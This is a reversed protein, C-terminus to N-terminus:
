VLVEIRAKKKLEEIFAQAREQKQQETLYEKIRESVQEFPVTSAARHETVRIIHYGFPTTVVDSTEGPKLSFAVQDFAPVMQGKTFFNLDGGQAASGDKSYKKALTAFDGGAKLQKLVDDVEARAKKKTAEDAKEDAPILIHSARVAEEQKFKDPNKDYFERVQADTPAPASAVEAQMMKNISMDIRADARLKDLTMGRAALAKTFEAESPFQSRMQKVTDEIEADAVAVKRAKTEQTLVTYTVLQDLARRLIEDRREQPIPQNASLEMNKILRDFDAKKVDEGNVHALVDPLAAPMPKAPPEPAAAGPGGASGATGAAGPAQGAAATQAPSAASATTGAPAKRCALTGCGVFAM